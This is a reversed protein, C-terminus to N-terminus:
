SHCPAFALAPPFRGNSPKARSETVPLLSLVQRSLLSPDVNWAPGTFTPQFSDACNPSFWVFYFSNNHTTWKISLSHLEWAKYFMAKLVWSMLLTPPYFPSQSTTQSQIDFASLDQWWKLHSKSLISYSSLSTVQIKFPSFFFSVLFASSM